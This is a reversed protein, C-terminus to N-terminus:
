KDKTEAEASGSASLNPDPSLPKSIASFHLEGIVASQFSNLGSLSSFGSLSGEEGECLDPLDGPITKPQEKATEEHNDKNGESM